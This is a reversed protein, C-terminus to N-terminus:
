YPMKHTTTKAFDQKFGNQNFGIREFIKSAHSLVSVPRYNEKSLEDEKKFMSADNIDYGFSEDCDSCGSLGVRSGNGHDNYTNPSQHLKHQFSFFWIFLTYSSFIRENLCAIENIEWSHTINTFETELKAFSM